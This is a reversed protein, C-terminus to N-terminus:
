SFASKVTVGEALRTEQNRKFGEGMTTEVQDAREVKGRAKENGRSM